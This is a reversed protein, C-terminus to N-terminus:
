LVVAGLACGERLSWARFASPAKGQGVIVALPWFRNAEGFAQLSTLDQHSLRPSTEAHSHWVGVLRLGRRHWTAMERRCRKGDLELWANGARDARHPPTVVSLVLGRPDRLDVFLQGGREVQQASQRNAQLVSAARASIFLDLSLEPWSWRWPALDVLRAMGSHLDM